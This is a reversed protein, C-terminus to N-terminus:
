IGYADVCEVRSDFEGVVFRNGLATCRGVYVAAPAPKGHSHHRNLIQLPEAWIM